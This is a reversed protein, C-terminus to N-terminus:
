IMVTVGNIRLTDGVRVPRTFEINQSDWLTGDVPLKTAILTSIFSAGLMGHVVPKVFETRGAFKSDLHLKNDNGTLILFKSIDEETIKHIIEPTDGTKINPYEM